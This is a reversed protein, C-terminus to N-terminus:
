KISTHNSLSNSITTILNKMFHDIDSKKLDRNISYFETIQKKQNPFIKILDSKNNISYLTKKYDLFYSNNNTFNYYSYDYKIKKIMSKHHKIYFVIDENYISAEYYATSFGPFNYQEKNIKTFFKNLLTFSDVKEKNLYIGIQESEEAPNLILIDRYIDYKLKTDYYTQGEYSIKGLSYKDNILYMNNDGLTRYTNTYLPGYNIDLNERGIVKDFWNYTSIINSTQSQIRYTNLFLGLLLLFRTKAQINKM